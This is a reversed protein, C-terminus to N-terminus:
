TKYVSQFSCKCQAFWLSIKRGCDFSASTRTYFDSDFDELLVINKAMTILQFIIQWAPYNILPYEFSYIFSHIFVRQPQSKQTWGSLNFYGCLCSKTTM